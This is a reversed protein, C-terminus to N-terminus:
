GEQKMKWVNGALSCKSVKKLFFELRGEGRNSNFDRYADSHNKCCSSKSSGYTVGPSEATQVQARHPLAPRISHLDFQHKTGLNPVWQSQCLNSSSIYLM